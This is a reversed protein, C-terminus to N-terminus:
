IKTGFWVEIRENDTRWGHFLGLKEYKVEAAVGMEELQECLIKAAKKVKSDEYFYKVVTDTVETHGTSIAVDANTIKNKLIESIEVQSSEQPYMGIKAFETPLVINKNGYKPQFKKQETHSTLNSSSEKETVKVVLFGAIEKLRFTVQTSGISKGTIKGKGDVSVIGSNNRDWIAKEKSSLRTENPSLINVRAQKTEDVYLELITPVPEM